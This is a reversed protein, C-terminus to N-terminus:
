RRTMPPFHKRSFRPHDLPLAQSRPCQRQLVESTAMTQAERGPKESREVPTLVSGIRRSCPQSGRRPRSPRRKLDQLHHSLKCKLDLLLHALELHERRRSRPSVLDSRQELRVAVIDQLHLGSRRHHGPHAPATAGQAVHVPERAQDSTLSEPPQRRARPASRRRRLLVEPLCRKRVQLRLSRRRNGRESHVAKEELPQPQCPSRTRM